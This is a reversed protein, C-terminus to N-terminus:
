ESLGQQGPAGLAGLRINDSPVCVKCIFSAERLLKDINGPPIILFMSPELIHLCRVSSIGAQFTYNVFHGHGAESVHFNNLNLYRM